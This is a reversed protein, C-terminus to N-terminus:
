DVYLFEASSLLVKAYRGWPSVPLLKEEPKRAAAATVGAMMGDAKGTDSEAREDKPAEPKPKEKEAKRETYALMPEAKLFEAGAALEAASPARGFLLSYLKRIRAPQDPEGETRRAVLEAQQQVFDSNMFFLRQLPVNTVHRKEASLNPSPFDFLQLYEDLRFRSIRAYVTRRKGGPTLDVSPGGMKPDLAGSVALMADRIQEADLRHRNARWLLRNASDKEFSAQDYADSMQYAASLLIERHLKKISMGGGAFSAALYDLLEPHSPREGMAGFNSPTDVLGAGFHGKWIRNVIVRMAIPQRVIADALALRGSGDTLPAPPGESLATLFRRPAEEGLNFPNGRLSIRLNAPKEAETVGHVYPYRPPQSKRLSAIDDRL